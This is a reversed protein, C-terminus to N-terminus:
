REESEMEGLLQRVAQRSVGAARGIEADSYGFARAEQLALRYAERSRQVGRARRRVRALELPIRRTTSAPM